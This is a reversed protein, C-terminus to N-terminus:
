QNMEVGGEDGKETHILVPTCTNLTNMCHTFPPLHDPDNAEIVSLCRGGLVKVSCNKLFASM